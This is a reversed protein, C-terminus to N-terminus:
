IGMISDAQCCAGARPQFQCSKLFISQAQNLGSRDKGKVQKLSVSGQGTRDGTIRHGTRVFRGLKKLDLHIM